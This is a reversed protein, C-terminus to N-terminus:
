KGCLAAHDPDGASTVKIVLDREWGIKDRAPDNRFLSIELTFILINSPRFTKIPVAAM